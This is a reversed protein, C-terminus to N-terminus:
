SREGKRAGARGFPWKLNWLDQLACFARTLGMDAVWGPIINEVVGVEIGDARMAENQAESAQWNVGWHSAKGRIEVTALPM